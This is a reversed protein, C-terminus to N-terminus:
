FLPNENREWVAFDNGAPFLESQSSLLIPSVNDLQLVGTFFTELFRAMQNSPLSPELWPRVNSPHQLVLRGGPRLACVSAAVQSMDEPYFLYVRDATKAFRELFAAQSLKKGRITVGQRSIDLHQVSGRRGAACVGAKMLRKDFRADGVFFTTADKGRPYVLAQHIRTQDIPKALGERFTLATPFTAKIWDIHGAFMAPDMTALHRPVLRVVMQSLTQRCLAESQSQSHFQLCENTESVIKGWEPEPPPWQGAAHRLWGNFPVTYRCLYSFSHRAVRKARTQFWRLFPTLVGHSSRELQATPVVETELARLWTLPVFGQRSEFELIKRQRDSVKLFLLGATHSVSRRQFINIVNGTLNILAWPTQYVPRTDRFQREIKFDAEHEPPNLIQLFQPSIDGRDQTVLIGGPKLTNFVTTASSLDNTYFLYIVDVSNQHQRMFEPDSYSTLHFTLRGQSVSGAFYAQLSQMAESDHEVVLVRDGRGLALEITRYDYGAGLIMTTKRSAVGQLSSVAGEVESQGICRVQTPIMPFLRRLATEYKPFDPELPLMLALSDAIAYAFPTLRNHDIPGGSQFVEWLEQKLESWPVDQKFLRAQGAEATFRGWLKDLLGFM